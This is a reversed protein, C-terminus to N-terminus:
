SFIGGPFGLSAVPFAAQLGPWMHKAKLHFGPTGSSGPSRHDYFACEEVPLCCSVHSEIDFANAPISSGGLSRLCECTLSHKSCSFTLAVEFVLRGRHQPPSDKVQFTFWFKLYNIFIGEFLFFIALLVIFLGANLIQWQSSDSAHPPGLSVQPLMRWGRGWEQPSTQQGFGSSESLAPRAPWSARPIGTEVRQPQFQHHDEVEGWSKHSNQPHSSQDKFNCLLCKLSQAMKGGWCHWLRLLVHWTRKNSLIKAM